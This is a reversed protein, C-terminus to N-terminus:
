GPRILETLRKWTYELNQLHEMVHWLTVVEFSQAPLDALQAASLLELNWEDRAFQRAQESKEIGTVQWGRQQMFRLFYGTGAGIDLISGPQQGVRKQILRYKRVLMTKRVLHYLRNVMGRSTDSHSIYRESQYYPGIEAEDPAGATIKLGCDTCRKILFTEGSVFHDTCSLFPEFRSGRCVPCSTTEVIKM